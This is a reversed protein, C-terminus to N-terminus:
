YLGRGESTGAGLNLPVAVCEARDPDLCGGLGSLSGLDRLVVGGVLSGEQGIPVGAGGWGIPGGLGGWLFAHAGGGCVGWLFGWVKRARYSGGWGITGGWLDGM